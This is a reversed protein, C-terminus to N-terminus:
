AAGAAGRRPALPCQTPDFGPDEIRQHIAEIADDESRFINEAGIEVDLGARQMVERVQLKVGALVLTVGNDHLRERLGHLSEVGSSDISTIGDAVLLLFRARPHENNVQLVADELHGVNAFYLPGDFRLAAIHESEPLDFFRADRLAGDEPHRSLIVVRPRMTRLLYLLIALGAGLLIGYDLHPAFVLTGAFTVVAAIGDHRHTRWTQVLARINVLGIVAMIIIAALIAEPLHYLLPTLFLLTLGVLAATFVSALGSRAGSDYNVASRSFSGSVPFAQFVSATLNSLGQGVLEQNPDIRDRTRTALAKAISIAEMFAVLAIVAATSLLTVVLEWSLEPRAPRPLGEPVTGVVAGGLDEFGVLYSVPVGIAVALLVGPIRPLWRRAALMVALAGLGMILTPLHAEGLRGLVDAFAVLLGTDRDLPVGLLDNVQSLAIVIAAANTFGLIVPHALFNVLTGLSFLGLVLQIVGVLFALAIALTIFEGSGPEALPTLASATLLAVVAVPGTALQPSSGWVAAVIVPLFAAYLGYYPPMGALAAYAMSQPILVLAVAIGAILDARINAPTPRPWEHCPILRHAPAWRGNGDFRM